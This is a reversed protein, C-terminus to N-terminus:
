SECPIHRSARSSSGLMARSKLGYVSFPYRRRGFSGTEDGDSESEVDVAMDLDGDGKVHLKVRKKDRATSERPRARKRESPPTLLGTSVGDRRFFNTCDLLSPDASPSM